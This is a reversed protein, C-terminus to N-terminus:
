GRWSGIGAWGRFLSSSSARERRTASGTSTSTCRSSTPFTPWWRLTVLDGFWMHAMEHLVTEARRERAADTVRSRFIYLDNFTVCGANEMAGSNSEPIFVQDYKGFAYPYGFARELYDFGQKTVDLLESPDLYEALSRRCLLGLDIEGHRDRVAHFPGACVATIYAPIRPTTEFNWEITGGRRVTPSGTPRGNSVVEWGERGVVIFDFTGKLDPQDFCAFVRHAGFPELHTHFYVEGDVPDEFRHMGVETRYYRCTASVRVENEAELGELVIRNGDFAGAAVDRGNVQIASVEPATLDLFTKGRPTPCRFRIISESGLGDDRTLDLRIEYRLDQVLGARRRAEERTQNNKTM